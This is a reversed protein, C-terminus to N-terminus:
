IKNANAKQRQQKEWGLMTPDSIIRFLRYVLPFQAMILLVMKQRFPFSKTTWLLRKGMVLLEQLMKKEEADMSFKAAYRWWLLRKMGKELAVLRVADCSAQEMNTFYWRVLPEMHKPQLTHVASNDRDYYCYMPAACQCLRPEKLSFLVELNLLVDEGLRLGSRFRHKGIVRANYLKGWVPMEGSIMQAPTIMKPQTQEPQITLDPTYESVYSAECMMIDANERRSPDHLLEFYRHHVWDDSDVFAIYEGTAEDLGRNRAASVGANPQDIVKVRSDRAAYGKLVELSNDRSGDNVCIVELERYTNNLISDLCRPLYEATNYIPIIVSILEEKM